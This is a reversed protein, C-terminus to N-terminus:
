VLKYFLTECPSNAAAQVADRCDDGKYIITETYSSEDGAIGQDQEIVLYM